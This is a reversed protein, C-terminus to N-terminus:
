RMEEELAEQLNDISKISPDYGSYGKNQRLPTVINLDIDKQPIPWYIHYPAITYPMSTNPTVKKNYYDNYKDIRQFWYSDESLGDITYRKGFEDQKGTRAFIYSVRSLETHRFEEFFLERAREDMIVGMNMDAATFLKTCRARKRVENVDAAAKELNGKWFYAEARLLYTEALRYFYWHAAGGNYSTSSEAEPCEIWLKYHPWEFWNTLTDKCLLRDGDWKRINKGAWPNNQQFLAPNNYKLNEMVMWNGSEVDHRLDTPDNLWVSHESYWTPRIMGIGRGFAKRYDFYEWSIDMGIKGDPTQIGTTGGGAWFPVANRMTNMRVRSAVYDESNVLYYIAEKNEPIVKNEPRHLDWIPNRKIPHEVPMPNIFTGFNEKMLAYGSNDILENAQEIAKDFEGKALYCKILLQRCAGKTIMGGKEAVAPVHEVAFEMDSTIMDLIVERKTSKYNLKPASPVKTLLPVDGFQFLFNFYVFSRHFYARGLMKDRIEPDVGAIKPLNELVTNAYKIGQFGWVWFYATRNTWGSDNKGDPVLQTIVDISFDNVYTAGSAGIVAIDSFIMETVIPPNDTTSVYTYYQRLNLDCTALAAELGSVTSFVNEPNFESLPDPKLFDDSCNTFTSSLVLLSVIFVSKNIIKKM